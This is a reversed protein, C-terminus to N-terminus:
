ELYNMEFFTRYDDLNKSKLLERYNTQGVAFLEYDFIKEDLFDKKNKQVGDYYDMAAAADKFRRIAVIPYKDKGTGLYINNMRLKDQSHYKTNYRSVAVKADNLKVENRFVVIVYHLQEMKVKYNGVQGEGKPLDRQQGPGTNVREGLNRLMERATKAEPEGPFSAVVRKLAEIYKEKGELSGICMAGLLAFRPQLKNTGGFKEGVKAIREAATKYQRKEFVAFTEDYYKTLKAEKSNAQLAFSPDKLMRAYDTTPYGNVIKDYYVQANAEDGMDNYAHYLYFLADLKYQTDPYRNLLELLTEVSKEYNKLRDRYLTGLNFMAAEISRNAAAIKEPTDPVDKFVAAIEEETLAGASEAAAIIENEAFSSQNSLRWNDELTRSGWKRQFERIGKKVGRENYAWFNSKNASSISRANPLSSSGSSAEAAAAAKKRIEELRKKEQEKKIQFALERREEDTMRSIRLLSDQLEIIQINESIGELNKALREVRGYREDQKNLVSLTNDYNTKADVYKGDQYYFDALLLYAEAKLPANSKSNEIALKLNAIAAEKNGSQLDLGALAYYIQDSFDKNKEEKLMRELKKRSDAESNVGALALNLRANFDMEYAPKNKIVEEFAAFAASGRGAQQHLQGLIFSLRAKILNEKTSAIAKELPQIAQEYKKQKMFYHARAIDAERRIDKPTASNSELRSLLRDANTFNEREIYTRALWLVGEQYAPRHKFTYNEPEGDEITTQLNGLRISGPAPYGNPLRRIDDVIKEEEQRPAKKDKGAEEKPKPKRAGPKKKNKNKRRKKIEKNKAKRAKERAKKKKKALKQKEKKSLKIKEGSEDKAPTEGKKIAKKVAKSRRGKAKSVAAKEAMKQPSFEGILYEFTEEAKEYDQKLFQAQGALLYCDDTWRSIEHLAVVTTVKVIAQDLPEAVAKPNDAAMYKYIPLTKNYNDKYQNELELQSELLLNTANYYGNYRATMNQYGKGIPGIDDKKKQTVCASFVLISLLYFLLTNIKKM